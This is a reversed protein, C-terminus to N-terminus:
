NLRGPRASSWHRWILEPAKRDPWVTDAERRSSFCPTRALKREARRLESEGWGPPLYYALAQGFDKLIGLVSRDKTPGVLVPSMARIEADILAPDIDIRQLRQEVIAPLRDPLRRVDRAPTLIPLLSTASIILLLPQRDVVFRNVYWAGLATDDADDADATPAPLRTLVKKTARLTTM